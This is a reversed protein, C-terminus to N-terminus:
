ADNGVELTKGLEQLGLAVGKLRVSVSLDNSFQRKVEVLLM